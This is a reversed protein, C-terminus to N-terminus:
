ERGNKEVNLFDKAWVAIIFIFEFVRRESMRIFLPRIERYWRQKWVFRAVCEQLFGRSLLNFVM